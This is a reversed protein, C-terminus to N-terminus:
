CFHFRILFFYNIKFASSANKCSLKHTQSICGSFNNEYKKLKPKYFHSRSYETESRVYKKKRYQTVRM